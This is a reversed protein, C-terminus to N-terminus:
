GSLEALAARLEDLLAASPTGDVPLGATLQFDRIAAISDGDIVGDLKGPPFGLQDLLTEMEVLEGQGLSAVPAPMPSEGGGFRWLLGALGIAFGVVLVGLLFGSWAPRRDVPRARPPRIPRTHATAPAPAALDAAIEVPVTEPATEVPPAADDAAKAAPVPKREGPPPVPRDEPNARLPEDTM